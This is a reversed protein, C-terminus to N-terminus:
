LIEDWSALSVRGGGMVPNHGECHQVSSICFFSLACARRSGGQLASETCQSSRLLFFVSYSYTDATTRSRLKLKEWSRGTGRYLISKQFIGSAGWALHNMCKDHMVRCQIHYCTSSIPHILCLAQGHPAWLWSCGWIVSGYTNYHLYGCLDLSLLSLFQVIRNCETIIVIFSVTSFGRCENNGKIREAVRHLILLGM